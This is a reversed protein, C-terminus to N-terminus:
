VRGLYAQNLDLEQSCAGFGKAESIQFLALVVVYPLETEAVVEQVRISHGQWCDDVIEVLKRMWDASEYHACPYMIYPHTPLEFDQPM